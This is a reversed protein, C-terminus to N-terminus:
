DAAAGRRRAPDGYSPLLGELDAGLQRGDFEVNPQAAQTFYLWMVMGSLAFLPYQIGARSPVHALLGLFVSFVVALSLPQLIAWVAGIATQKYRM